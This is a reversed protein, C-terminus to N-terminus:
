VNILFESFNTLIFIMQYIMIGIRKEHKSRAPKAAYDIGYPPDVIALDFSKDSQSQMFEMCDGNILTINGCKEIKM